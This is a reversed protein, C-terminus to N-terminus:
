EMPFVTEMSAIDNVKFSHNKLCRSYYFSSTQRHPSLLVKKLDFVATLHTKSQASEEKLDEKKLGIRKRKHTRRTRCM